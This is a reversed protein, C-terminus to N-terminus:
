TFINLNFDILFNDNKSKVIDKILNIHINGYKNIFLGVILPSITNGDYCIILINYNIFNNYIYELIKNLNKKLLQIDTHYDLNQSLPIRIKKIDDIDIFSYDKTCNIVIDIGYKIYISKDYSEKVNCCFINNIYEILM